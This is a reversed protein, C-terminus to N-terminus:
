FKEYQFQFNRFALSTLSLKVMNKKSQYDLKEEQLTQLSDKIENNQSFLLTSSALFVLLFLYYRM